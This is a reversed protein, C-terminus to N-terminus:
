EPRKMGALGDKAVLDRYTIPTIGRSAFAKRVEDSLLAKLEGERHKSMEPLGSINQDTLARMEPTDHSIHFVLLNRKVNTLRGIIAVLSDTKLHPEVRYVTGADEEGFYRSIGLHFEAALKEVIARLEPTGVAAGMHYDVYDPKLGATLARQIQSRLEREVEDLKPNKAMLLARSPLFYGLSDTLSPVDSGRLPGWRLERWEANLTLHVGVSVNPYKRLFEAAEPFWPCVTMVSASFPLGSEALDRFADNVGQSLGADDCRILLTPPDSAAPSQAAAPLPFLLFLAPALFRLLRNRSMLRDPFFLHLFNPHHFTPLTQSSPLGFILSCARGNDRGGERGVMM